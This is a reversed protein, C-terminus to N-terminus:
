DPVVVSAADLPRAVNLVSLMSLAPVPYRSEAVAEPSELAVDLVKLTATPAGAFSANRTSGDSAAAPDDIVGATLTSIRSAPPLRVVAVLLTVTARPVLGLPPASPPVLVTAATLPTAVKEFRLM